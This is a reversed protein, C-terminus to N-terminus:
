DQYIITQKTQLQIRYKQVQFHNSWDIKSNEFLVEQVPASFFLKKTIKKKSFVCRRPALMMGFEFKLSKTNKIHLKSFVQFRLKNHIGEIQSYPGTIIDSFGLFMIM